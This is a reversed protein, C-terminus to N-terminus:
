PGLRKREPALAHQRQSSVADPRCAIKVQEGRMTLERAECHAPLRADRPPKPKMARWATIWRRIVSGNAIRRLTRRRDAQRMMGVENAYVSAALRSAEQADLGIVEVLFSRTCRDLEVIATEHDALSMPDVRWSQQAPDMDEQRALFIHPSFLTRGSAAQAVAYYREFLLLPLDFRASHDLIRTLADTRQLAYWTMIQIGNPNAGLEGLRDAPTMGGLWPIQFKEPGGDAVTVTDSFAAFSGLGFTLYNGIAAVLDDEGDFEAVIDLVWDLFYFDDDAALMVFETEVAACAKRLRTLFSVDSPSTDIKYEVSFQADRMMSDFVDRNEPTSGDAIVLTCADIGPAESYYRLLRYLQDPRNASHVLITVRSLPSNSGALPSALYPIIADSM